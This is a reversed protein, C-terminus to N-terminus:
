FSTGGFSNAAMPEFDANVLNTTPGMFMSNFDPEAIPPQVQQNIPNQTVNLGPPLLSPPPNNNGAIPQSVRVNVKSNAPKSAGFLRDSILASKDGISTHTSISFMIFLFPLIITIMNQPLYAIGSMTPIYDIIRHILIFGGLVIALEAILEATIIFTDKKEDIKPIYVSVGKLLLTVMIAALIVYQGINMLEHRALEDFNFVSSFFNPKDPKDSEM